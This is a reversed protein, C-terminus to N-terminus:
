INIIKAGWKLLGYKCRHAWSSYYPLPGPLFELMKVRCGGWFFITDVGSVSFLLYMDHWESMTVTDCLM